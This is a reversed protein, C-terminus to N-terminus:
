ANTPKNNWTEDKTLQTISKLSLSISLHGSCWKVLQAFKTCSVCVCIAQHARVLSISEHM